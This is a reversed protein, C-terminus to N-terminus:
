KLLDDLGQLYGDVKFTDLYSLPINAPEKKGLKKGYPIFTKENPNLVLETGQTRLVIQSEFCAFTADLQEDALGWFLTGRVGAVVAPTRVVFTEDKKIKGQIGVLFEGQSVDLLQHKAKVDSLIKFSANGKILAMRGSNMEIHVLAEPGTKVLDGKKIVMGKSLPKVDLTKFNFVKSQGTAELVVAEDAFLSLSFVFIGIWCLSKM